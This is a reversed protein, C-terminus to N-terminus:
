SFRRTIDSLPVGFTKEVIEAIQGSDAQFHMTYQRHTLSQGPSLPAGPSSTEIEYFPGMVTGDETPGDNYSNIVDGSFPDDQPGWQANVYDNNGQPVTYKLITLLGTKRDYSGCLDKASGQPLGLKSRLKGDIKFYIMGDDVILRDAPIKGFYEDNVITGECEKRYPIFVTTTPTPQLMGLMWISPLGTAKEWKESGLNTITNETGFGVFKVGEPIESGLLESAERRDLLSVKREVGISFHTGSANALEFARTFTVSKDDAAAVDFGESNIPAPVKWNPYIQEDGQAFYLSFPGGEPGLWFREEGGTPNFQPNQEGSEIFAHNIWGYSEGEDGDSTSTMVRGQYAPVILIKSKGDDSALEITDIGNKKFFSSDYAYSAM